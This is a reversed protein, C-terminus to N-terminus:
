SDDMLWGGGEIHAINVPVSENNNHTYKKVLGLPFSLVFPANVFFSCLMVLNSHM